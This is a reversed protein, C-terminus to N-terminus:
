KEDVLYAPPSEYRLVTRERDNATYYPYTYTIEDPRRKVTSTELCKQSVMKLLFSWKEKKWKREVLDYKAEFNVKEWKVNIKFRKTCNTRPTISNNEPCSFNTCCETRIQKIASINAQNGVFSDMIQLRCPLTYFKNPWLCEEAEKCCKNFAETLTINSANKCCFDRCGM